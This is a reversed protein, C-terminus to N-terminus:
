AALKSANLFWKSAGEATDVVRVGTDVGGPAETRPSKSGGLSGTPRATPRHPCRPEHQPCRPLSKNFATFIAAQDLLWGEPTQPAVHTEDRLWFIGRTPPAIPEVLNTPKKKPTILDDEEEIADDHNQIRHRPQAHQRRCGLMRHLRAFVRWRGRARRRRGSESDESGKPKTLPRVNEM